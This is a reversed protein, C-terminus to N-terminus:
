SNKIISNIDDRMEEAKERIYREFDDAEPPFAYNIASSSSIIAGFGKDDFSDIIDKATAGQAGYGPMLFIVSPMIERLLKINEPHTAGVVAGISSYSHKGVSDGGWEQVRKAVHEALTKKESYGWDKGIVILDQFDASSPNSTKVLIFIGKKNEACVELFPQVGDIGLYPNVTIADFPVSACTEGSDPGLYAMAYKKATKGLIVECKVNESELLPMRAIQSPLFVLDDLNLFSRTTGKGELAYHGTEAMEHILLISKTDWNGNADMTTDPKFFEVPCKCIPCHHFDIEGISIHGCVPCRMVITPM